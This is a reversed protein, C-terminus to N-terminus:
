SYLKKTDFIFDNLSILNGRIEAPYKEHLKEPVVLRVREEQMERFQTISVGEQLTFLYIDQIRDAENLIQRWRDKCTTKVALM